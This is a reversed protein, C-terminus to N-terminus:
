RRGRPIVVSSSAGRYRAPTTSPATQWSCTPGTRRHDASSCANASGHTVEDGEGHLGVPPDPGLPRQPLALLQEAGHAVAEVLGHKEHVRAVWRVKGHSVRVFGRAMKRAIAGGLQDVPRDGHERIGPDADRQILLERARDATLDDEEIAQLPALVSTDDGDLDVPAPDVAGSARRQEEEPPVNRMAHVRLSRLELELGVHELRLPTLTEADEGSTDGM